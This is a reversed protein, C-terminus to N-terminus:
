CQSIAVRSKRIYSLVSDAKRLCSSLGTENATAHLLSRIDPGTTRHNPMEVDSNGWTVRVLSAIVTIYLVKRYEKATSKNNAEVNFDISKM